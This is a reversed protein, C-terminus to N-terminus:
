ISINKTLVENYTRVELIYNGKSLYSFDLEYIVNQPLDAVVDSFEIDNTVTKIRIDNVTSKISEFDILIKKDNTNEFLVWSENNDVSIELNDQYHPLAATFSQANLTSFISLFSFTLAIKFQM